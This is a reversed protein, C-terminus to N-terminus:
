GLSSWIWSGVVSVFMIVTSSETEYGGHLESGGGRCQGGEKGGGSGKGKGLTLARRLGRVDFAVVEVGSGDVASSDGVTDFGAEGVNGRGVVM